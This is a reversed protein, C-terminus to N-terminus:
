PRHEAFRLHWRNQHDKCAFELLDLPAYTSPEGGGGITFLVTNTSVDVSHVRADQWTHIGGQSNTVITVVVSEVARIQSLLVQARRVQPVSLMALQEPLLFASHSGTRVPYTWAEGGYGDTNKDAKTKVAVPVDIHPPVEVALVYRASDLNFRSFDFYPRPSCRDRVAKSIREQTESFDSETLGNYRGVRGNEEWAGVLVTGGLHNAFAAVDKALHFSHEDSYSGKLDLVAREFAAGPDPLAKLPAYSM